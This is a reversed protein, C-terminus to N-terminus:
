ARSRKIQRWVDVRKSAFDYVDYAISFIHQALVLKSWLCAVAKGVKTAVVRAVRKETQKRFNDLHHDGAEKAVKIRDWCRPACDHKVYRHRNIM